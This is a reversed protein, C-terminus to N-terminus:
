GRHDAPPRSPTLRAPVGAARREFRRWAQAAQEAPAAEHEACDVRLHADGFPADVFACHHPRQQGPHADARFFRCSVCTRAPAIHGREQLGRIVGVLGRLLGAQEGPALEAVSAALFDSWASVRASERRGAATLTVVLARADVAARTKRVLRKRELTSVAESATAASVGLAEALAGLGLGGARRGLAALLEGQTPTLGRESAAQWARSRLAQGLRALGAAVRKALADPAEDFPAPQRATM